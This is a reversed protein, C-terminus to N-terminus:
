IIINYIIFIFEINIKENIFTKKENEIKKILIILSIKKINKYISSISIKM